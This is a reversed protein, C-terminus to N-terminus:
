PEDCNITKTNLFLTNIEKEITEYDFYNSTYEISNNACNWWGFTLVDIKAYQFKDDSLLQRNYDSMVKEPCCNRSAMELRLNYWNNLLIDGGLILATSHKIACSDKSKFQKLFKTDIYSQYAIRSLKYLQKQEILQRKRYEKWFKTKPLSIKRLAKHKNKYECDLTDINLKQIYSPKFVM